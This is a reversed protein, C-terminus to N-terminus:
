NDGCKALTTASTTMAISSRAPRTTRLPLHEEIPLYRLRFQAAISLRGPFNEFISWTSFMLLAVLFFSRM